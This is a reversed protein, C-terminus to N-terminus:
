ELEVRTAAKNKIKGENNVMSNCCPLDSHWSVRWAVFPDKAVFNGVSGIRGFFNFAKCSMYERLGVQQSTHVRQWWHLIYFELVEESMRQCRSGDM